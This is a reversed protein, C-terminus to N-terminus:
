LPLLHSSVDDCSRLVLMWHPIGLLFSRVIEAISNLLLGIVSQDPWFSDIDHCPPERSYIGLQLVLRTICYGYINHMFHTFDTKGEKRRWATVLILSCAARPTIEAAPKPLGIGQDESSDPTGGSPWAMVNLLAIWSESPWINTLNNVGLRSTLTRDVLINPFGM